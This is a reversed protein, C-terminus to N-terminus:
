LIVDVLGLKQAEEATMYWNRSVERFKHLQNKKIKTTEVIVDDYLDQLRSLEEVEHRIQTLNDAIGFAAEHYMLTSLRHAFRKHCVAFIIFGMSMAHGLCIGHVPTKSIQIASVLGFGSYAYGGPSNVVLEIPKRVYDKITKEREDDLENIEIIKKTASEVSHFNVDTFLYIKRSETQTTTNNAM